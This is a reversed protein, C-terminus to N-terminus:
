PLRKRVQPLAAPSLKFNAPSTEGSGVPISRQSKVFGIKSISIHYTGPALNGIVFRGARDTQASAQGRVSVTAGAIPSGKADTVQGTLKGRRLEIGGVITPPKRIEAGPTTDRRESRLEIDQRAPAGPRVSITRTETVYGNLKATLQYNDPALPAFRYNGRADTTRTQADTTRTSSQDQLSVSVGSLSKLTGADTISGVLQGEGALTSGTGATKTDRGYTTETRQIRTEGSTEGRRENRLTESRRRSENRLLGAILPSSQKKVQFNRQEIGGARLALEQSAGDYGVKSITLRYPGPKLNRLEFTGNVGTFVSIVSEGQVASVKARAVPRKDNDLVAGRLITASGPLILSRGGTSLKTVADSQSFKFNAEAIKRQGVQVQAVKMKLSSHNVTLQYLGAPVNLFAYQGLSNTRAVGLGKAARSVQAPQFDRELSSQSSNTRSLNVPRVSAPIYPVYQDRMIGRTFGLTKLTVLARSVPHGQADLVVGKVHGAIASAAGIVVTSPLVALSPAKSGGSASKFQFDAINPRGPFVEVQGNMKKQGKQVILKTLKSTILGKLKYLGNSDTTTTLGTELEHVEAGEVPNGEDTVVGSVDETPQEAPTGEEAGTEGTPYGSQEQKLGLLAARMEQIKQLFTLAEGAFGNIKGLLSKKEGSPQEGGGSTSANAAAEETLKTLAAQLEAKHKAIEQDAQATDKGEELLNAKTALAAKLGELANSLASINETSNGASNSLTEEAQAILQQLEADAEAAQAAEAQAADPQATAGTEAGGKTEAAVQPATIAQYISGALQELAGSFAQGLGSGRFKGSKFDVSSLQATIDGSGTQAGVGEARVNSLSGTEAAVIDAYLQVTIKVEGGARESTIALLGGRVVFRVGSQKGLAALQDVTLGKISSADTGAGIVRPLLDKYAVALKQQLEQGLEAPVNMGSEDQFGLIAVSILQTQPAPPKGFAVAQGFGFSILFVTFVFTAILSQKRKM